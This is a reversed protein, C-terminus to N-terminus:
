PRYVCRFGVRFHSTHPIELVHLSFIGKRDDNHDDYAFGRLVNNDGNEKAKTMRIKGLNQDDSRYVSLRLPNAPSWDNMSRFCFHIENIDYYYYDIDRMTCSMSPSHVDDLTWNIWERVNGALDWIVEGNLLENTRKQEWGSGESNETGSYADSDDSSAELTDPPSNDSHGLSLYEPKNNGDLKWNTINAEISRAIAMWEPNSILHYNAGLEECVDFAEDHKINVWPKGEPTSVATLGTYDTSDGDRSCNQVDYNGTEPEFCKAEYKMVCFPSTGLTSNADVAIFGSPCELGDGGESNLLDVCSNFSLSLLILLPRLTKTM